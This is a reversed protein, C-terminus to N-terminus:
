KYKPSPCPMQCCIVADLSIGAEQLKPNKFAKLTDRLVRSHACRTLIEDALHQNGIGILSDAHSTDLLMGEELSAEGGPRQLHVIM